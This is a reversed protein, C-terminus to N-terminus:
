EAAPVTAHLRPQAQSTAADFLRFLREGSGGQFPHHFRVWERLREPTLPRPDAWRRSVEATWEDLRQAAQAKGLGHEALALYLRSWISPRTLSLLATRARAHDGEALAILGADQQDNDAAFMQLQLGLALLERAQEWQGLYTMGCAVENVRVPNYPNLALAQDFCSRALEPEDHYLYCFGLVTYAHVNGRDAALGARALELAREREARGSQGLATFGFDTNYLRVLPPYALGFDPREAILAELAKASALAEGGDDAGVSRRKALLYRDFFDASVAPLGLLVDNDVAPLASGVIRRVITQVGAATGDRALSLTEAWVVRGDDTRSARALVRVGDQEPMLTATLRYGRAGADLASGRRLGDDTVLQIERFRALGSLVEERLQAACHPFDGRVAGDEFTSVIVVPPQAAVPQAPAASPALPPPARTERLRAECREVPHLFRYGRGYVSEIFRPARSGDNLARRLEKIVSTLASESVFTGDWVSTFLAEKTLLRGEQELLALLVQYAKNGIKIPGDPGLLREDSRDLLYEGFRLSDPRHDRFPDM